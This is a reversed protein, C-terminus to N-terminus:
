TIASAMFSPTLTGCNAKRRFKIAIQVVIVDWVYDGASLQNFEINLFANDNFNVFTQVAIPTQSVSNAYNENWNYLSLTFDGINNGYSPCQVGIKTFNSSATFKMGATAADGVTNLADPYAMILPKGDRM